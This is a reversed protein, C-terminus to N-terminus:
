VFLPAGFCSYCSLWLPLSTFCIHWSKFTYSLWLFFFVMHNWNYTSDLSCLLCVMLCFFFLISVLSTSVFVGVPLQWLPLPTPPAPYFLYFPWPFIFEYVCVVSHNNGSGGLSHPCTLSPLPPISPSSFLSSKPHNVWLVVYLHNITSNCVQIRYLKVLWHLGFNM